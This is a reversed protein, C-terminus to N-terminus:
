TASQDDWILALAVTNLLILGLFAFTFEPSEVFLRMRYQGRLWQRKFTPLDQMVVAAAGPGMLM